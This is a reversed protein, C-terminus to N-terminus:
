IDLGSGASSEDASGTAVDSQDSSKPINMDDMKRYLSSLGIGLQQATVDKDYNNQSLCRIIYHREFQRMADKLAEDSTETIGDMAFPLHELSIKGGDAFIVAREIANELERVNGKWGHNLMALMAANTIGTIQKNMALSLKEIFHHVLAPIDEKRERLPPIEIRVVNLRYLLDERFEGTSVMGTLDKNSAAIIRLDVKRPTTDGVPTVVREELARLLTSQLHMPFTSIEDLFLTGGDAVEFFGIRDRDAGTFAGRRHGFLESEVLNEPIGGCNVPVFPKDRTIGNYHIAKAFLEKGTGSAGILLVNSKVTSLKRVVEFLEVLKESRGILDHFSAEASLQETMVRQIRSLDKHELARRVRLLLDDFEIPKLLFDSAGATLAAVANQVTGYATLMIVPTEPALQRLRQLLTMGDMGPMRIDSIILDVPQDMVLEYATQGDPAQAVDYGEEALLEALSERLVEEDEAILISKPM